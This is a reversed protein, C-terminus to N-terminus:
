FAFNNNEGGDPTGLAGWIGYHSPGANGRGASTPDQGGQDASLDGVDISDPIFHVSGDALCANVGGVHYSSVTMIGWSGNYACSPTNPPLVTNFGSEFFAGDGFRQGGWISSTSPLLTRDGSSYGNQLCASPVVRGSAYISTIAATLGSKVKNSAVTISSSLAGDSQTDACCKESFVVTNSTGDNFASFSKFHCPAFAGRMYTKPGTGQDPREASNWIGDGFSVRLSTRSTRYGSITYFNSPLQVEGDSPCRYASPTHVLYPAVENSWPNTAAAGSGTRDQARISEWSVLGEMFPLLVAGTGWNWSMLSSWPVGVQTSFVSDRPRLLGQRSAPFTKMSDHYNHLAIGLQKFNNTCQMRRAAERAAQVAPLLLAILVGIIAIVVLLEFLTFGDKKCLAGGGGIKVNTEVNSNKM